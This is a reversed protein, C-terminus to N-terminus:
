DTEYDSMVIRPANSKTAWLVLVVIGGILVYQGITGLQSFFNSVGTTIASATNSVTTGVDSILVNPANLTDIPNPQPVDTSAPNAAADNANLYAYMGPADGLHSHARAKPARRKGILRYQGEYTSM